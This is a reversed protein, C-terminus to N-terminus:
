QFYRALEVGKIQKGTEKEYARVSGPSIEDILVPIKDIFGWEIKCDWLDLGKEAFISNLVHMVKQNTENVAAFQADTMINFKIILEPSILPDGAEDDKLTIEYIPEVLRTGDSLKPISKYRRYFSGTSVWRCIWELGPCFLKVKHVDMTLESMNHSVMHTKIREHELKKFFYNTMSLCAKAYSDIKQEAIKNGGPDIEGKDNVTVRDTFQFRLTNDNLEYVDKTKGQKILIM